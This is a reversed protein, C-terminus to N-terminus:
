YYWIQASFEQGSLPHCLLEPSLNVINLGRKRCPNWLVSTWPNHIWCPLWGSLLSCHIQHFSLTSICNSRVEQPKRRNSMFLYNEQLFAIYLSLFTLLLKISFEMNPSKFVSIPREPTLVDERDGSQIMILIRKLVNQNWFHWDFFQIASMLM